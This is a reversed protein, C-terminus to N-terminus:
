FVATIWSKLYRYQTEFVSNIDLLLYSRTNLGILYRGRFEAYSLCIITEFCRTADVTNSSLYAIACWDIGYKNPASRSSLHELFFKTCKVWIAVPYERAYKPQRAFFHSKISKTANISHTTINVYVATRIANL